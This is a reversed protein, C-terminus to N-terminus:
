AKIDIITGLVEDATQVVEASAQVQQEARLLNVASEELAPQQESDIRQEASVSRAIDDAARNATDIGARLGNLGANLVSDVM